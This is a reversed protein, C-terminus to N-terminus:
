SYLLGTSFSSSHNIVEFPSCVGCRVGYVGMTLAYGVIFNYLIKSYKKSRLKKGMWWM